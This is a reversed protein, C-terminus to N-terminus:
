QRGTELRAGRLKKQWEHYTKSPMPLNKETYAVRHLGAQGRIIRALQHQDQYRQCGQIRWEYLISDSQQDLIRSKLSPCRRTQRATLREMFVKPEDQKGDYFQVTYKKTWKSIFEDEPVYEWVMSRSLRDHQKHGLKWGSLEGPLSAHEPPPTACASMLLLTFSATLLKFLKM